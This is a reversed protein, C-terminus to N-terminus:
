SGRYTTYGFPGLLLPVHHTQRPDRVTFTVVIEPYFSELGAARFFADTSFILRYLGTEMKHDAPLLTSARGDADTVGQALMTGQRELRVGIGVAPRGRAIDLVHTTIASM